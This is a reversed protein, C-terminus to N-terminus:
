HSNYKKETFYKMKKIFNEDSTFIGNKFTSDIIKNNAFVYTKRKDFRIVYLTDSFKNTIKRTRTDIIKFVKRRVIKNISDNHLNFFILNDIKGNEPGHSYKLFKIKSNIIYSVQPTLGDFQFKYEIASNKQVENNFENEYQKYITENNYNGKKWSLFVITLVCIVSIILIYKYKIIHNM